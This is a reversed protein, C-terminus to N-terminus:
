STTEIAKNPHRRRIIRRGVSSAVLIGGFLLVSYRGGYIFPGMVLNGGDAYLVRSEEETLSERNHEGWEQRIRWKEFIAASSADLALYTFGIAFLVKLIRRISTKKILNLLILITSGVCLVAPLMWSYDNHRSTEWIQELTM